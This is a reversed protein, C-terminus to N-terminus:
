KNKLTDYYHESRPIGDVAISIDGINFPADFTVTGGNSISSLDISFTEGTLDISEPDISISGPQVLGKLSINGEFSYGAGRLFKEFNQVITILEDSEFELTSKVSGAFPVPEDEFTFKFNSM